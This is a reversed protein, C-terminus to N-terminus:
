SQLRLQETVETVPGGDGFALTLLPAPATVARLPLPLEAWASPTPLPAAHLVRQLTWGARELREVWDAGPEVFCLVHDLELM